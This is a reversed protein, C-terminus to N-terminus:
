NGPALNFSMLFLDYIQGDIALREFTDVQWGRRALFRHSQHAAHVTYRTLGAAKAHAMLRDYLALATGNGMVEPIVFFMDLEGLADMSIFGIIQEADQAVYCWQALLKDPTALDPEPSPAWAALEAPTYFAVAGERVARYFVRAMAARDQPMYPRIMTAM